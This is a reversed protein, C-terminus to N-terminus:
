AWLTARHYYMSCMHGNQSSLEAQYKLGGTPLLLLSAGSPLLDARPQQTVGNECNFDHTRVSAPDSEGCECVRSSVVLRTHLTTKNQWRIVDDAQEQLPHQQLGAQLVRQASCPWLVTLDCVFFQVKAFLSQSVSSLIAWLIGTKIGQAFDLSSLHGKWLRRCQCCQWFGAVRLNAALVCALILLDLADMWLRWPVSQPAVKVARVDTSGQSTARRNCRHITFLKIVNKEVVQVFRCEPAEYEM